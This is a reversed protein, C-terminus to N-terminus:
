QFTIALGDTLDFFAGGAAPDRYWSQFYWTDGAQIVAAPGNLFDVPHEVNGYANAYTVPLRFVGSGSNGVCRTGNGFPLQVQSGGFYFVSPQLAPLDRAQLQLSQAAASSSGIAEITAAMGTSNQSTVCYNAGIGTAISMSIGIDYGNCESPSNPWILVQLHVTTPTLNPNIWSISENDTVSYSGAIPANGCTAFLAADIDGGEHIFAIDISVQAGAAVSIAYWDPDTRTVLLNSASSVLTAATACTDNEEFGDDQVVGCPHQTTTIELEYESCEMLGQLAYLHIRYQQISNTFNAGSVIELDDTSYSGDILNLCGGGFLELEVDALSHEFHAVVTVQDGPAVAIRYWDDDTTSVLLNPHIGESIPAPSACSDSPEFSDDGSCLGPTVVLELDYSNCPPGPSGSFIRVELVMTRSGPGQHGWIISEDDSVSDSWALASGLQSCSSQDYLYLDIDGDVHLFTADIELLDGAQLDISYFDRDTTEVYLGSYSGVALVAPTSCSDNPELADDVGPCQALAPASGFAASVAAIM